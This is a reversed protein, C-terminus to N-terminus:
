RGHSFGTELWSRYAKWRLTSPRNEERLKQNDRIRFSVYGPDAGEVVCAALGDLEM